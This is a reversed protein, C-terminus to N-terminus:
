LRRGRWCYIVRGLVELRARAGNDLVQSEYNKNDSIIKLGGDLQRQVRKIFLEDDRLLVYVADVKVERVGTDVLVPDGGSFTPEMSDGYATLVALNNLSTYSVNRRLWPSSITMRDVVEDYDPPFRGRGASAMANFHPLDLHDQDAAPTALYALRHDTVQPVHEPAGIGQTLWKVDVGAAEAIATTNRSSTAPKPRNADALYQISQATVRKGLIRSVRRALESQGGVKDACYQIREPFTLM